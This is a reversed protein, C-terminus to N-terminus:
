QDPNEVYGQFDPELSSMVSQYSDNMAATVNDDGQGIPYIPQHITLSLPHWNLFHWDRTRPMVYFSGNITLPVIPLQLEDALLFAGRRFKGMHGTFTRSGEPFVVISIGGKMIQKAKEYSERIRKPGRKDIMIQKSAKCAIGVFPIKMLQYKMMWRFNCGLYAYVLFIDFAGQHNAVFVYSQNKELHAKGETKVPLLFLKLIVWGWIKPPYYGFFRGGGLLCGILVLLSIFITWVLVLPIAILVQYIRYLYKM